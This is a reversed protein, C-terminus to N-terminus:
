TYLHIISIAQRECAPSLPITVNMVTRRAFTHERLPLCVWGAVPAGAPLLRLPRPLYSVLRLRRQFPGDQPGALPCATVGTFTM